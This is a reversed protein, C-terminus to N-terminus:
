RHIIKNSALYKLSHIIQMIYCQAEIEMLRRRRKILENLSQNSCLELLIYVNEGDEFVHEFHVVNTHHISRHIKIESLLKARQRSKQLTAKPVIKAATIKKTELNTFEYCKAFGGKGLFKGRSYKKIVPEGLANTIKEEVIVVQNDTPNNPTSSSQNPQNM